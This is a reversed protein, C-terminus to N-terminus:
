PNSSPDALYRSLQDALAEALISVKQAPAGVRTSWFLDIDRGPESFAKQQLHWAVRDLRADLIRVDVQLQTPMAGTGGVVYLVSTTLLLDCGERRSLWIADSDDRVPHQITKVEKFIGLKLLEKMYAQVIKEMAADQAPPGQFQALGLTAGAYHRITSRSLVEIPRLKVPRDSEVDLGFAHAWGCGVAMLFGGLLLAWFAFPMLHDPGSTSPTNENRREAKDM